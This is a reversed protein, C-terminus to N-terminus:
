RPYVTPNSLHNHQYIAKAQTHALTLTLFGQPNRDQSCVKMPKAGSLGLLNQWNLNSFSWGGRAWQSQCPFPLPIMFYALAKEM